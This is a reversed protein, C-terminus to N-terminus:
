MRGGERWSTPPPLPAGGAGSAPNTWRHFPSKEAEGRLLDPIFLSSKHLM